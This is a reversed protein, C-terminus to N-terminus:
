KREREIEKKETKKLVLVQHTDWAIGLRQRRFVSVLPLFYQFTIITIKLPLKESCHV